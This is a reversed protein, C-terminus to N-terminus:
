ALNNWLHLDRQCLKAFEAKLGAPWVIPHRPAANVHIRELEIGLRKEMWSWLSELEDFKFVMKVGLEWGTEKQDRHWRAPQKLLFDSQFRWPTYEQAHGIVYDEFKPWRNYFPHGKPDNAHRPHQVLAWQSEIWQHPERMAGVLVTNAVRHGRRYDAATMHPLCTRLVKLDPHAQLARTISTGGTRPTHIYVLRRGPIQRKGPKGIPPGSVEIM